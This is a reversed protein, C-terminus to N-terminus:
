LIAGHAMSVAIGVVCLPFGAALVWREARSRSVRADYAALLGGALGTWASVQWWHLGLGVVSVVGLALAVGALANEVPHRRRDDSLLRRLRGAGYAATM